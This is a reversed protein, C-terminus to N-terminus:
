DGRREPYGGLSGGSLKVKEARAPEAQVSLTIEEALYNLSLIEVRRRRCVGVVGLADSGPHVVLKLGPHDADSSRRIGGKNMALGQHRLGPSSIGPALHCHSSPASGSVWESDEPCWLILMDSSVCLSRDLMQGARSVPRDSKAVAVSGIPRRASLEVAPGRRWLWRNRGCRDSVQGGRRISRPVADRKVSAIPQCGCSGTDARRPTSAIEDSAPMAVQSNTLAPPETRIGLGSPRTSIQRLGIM